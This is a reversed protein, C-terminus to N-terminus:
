YDTLKSARSSTLFQRIDQRDWGLPSLVSEAARVLQTVYFGADYEEEEAEFRLRIRNLPKADDDRVVFKVCQGPKIKLDNYRARKLAAFGRNKVKYKELNKSIRRKKVLKEVPVELDELDAVKDRLVNIVDSSDMKIDLARIMEMQAEKIFDCTSRQEVEIGATKFEGNEKKGFYRNLTSIDANTSSRPVFACWKFRHEPELEIGIKDSINRCVQEFDEAEEKEKVWISDIIGHTISYGAEEFIEKTQVM